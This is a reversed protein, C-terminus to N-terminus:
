VPLILTDLIMYQSWPTVSGWVSKHLIVETEQWLERQTQIYPFDRDATRDPRVLLAQPLLVRVQFGAGLVLQEVLQAIDAHSFPTKLMSTRKELKHFPCHVMPLEFYPQQTQIIDLYPLHHWQTTALLITCNMRIFVPKTQTSLETCVKIADFDAWLYHYFEGASMIPCTQDTLMTMWTLGMPGFGYKFDLVTKLM